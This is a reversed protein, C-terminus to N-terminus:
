RALRRAEAGVVPDDPALRTAEEAERRAEAPRGTAALVEALAAHARAHGADLRIAERLPGEAAAPRGARVLTRGLDYRVRPDGPDLRSAEEYERVAEGLSGKMALANGLNMHGSAVRPSLEVARRFELLAEDLKGREVQAMGLNGRGIPEDPSVAVSREFLAVSDKWYGEQVWAVAGLGVVAALGLAGAAWAARPSRLKGRPPLAWVVAALPGMLPVYAYRDARAQVGVQVIGLVPLLTVLYWAWAARAGRGSKVAFVTVAALLLLSAGVQWGPIAAGPHPYFVALGTPWAMKVLYWASSVAANALRVGVPFAEVTRVAGHSAQAWVTAVGCALSAALFPLKEATLRILLASRTEGPRARREVLLGDVLLLTGPLTVAMPKAALALLALALVGLYRARGPRRVYATWGLLALLWFLTSLVNKREAIWAVSEVNLPHVAFLAAALGARLEEGGLRALLLFLLVANAAHLALSTLHHGAPRLGWIEVDVMHSLLTVPHWNGELPSTLAWLVSTPTTGARVHDNETVYAPDDYNVFGDGLVRAHVAITLAVIALAIALRARRAAAKLSM